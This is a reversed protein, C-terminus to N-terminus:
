KLLLLRRNQTQGSAEVRLVYTGAAVAAGNQSHGNWAWRYEGAQAAELTESLIHQGLVNFVALRVDTAGSLSLEVSVQANFPNPYVGDIRFTPPPTSSPRADGVDNIGLLNEIVSTMLAPDYETARYRIVGEQDVIFDVPFPTFGGSNRGYLNYHSWNGLGVPMTLGYEDVLEAVLNRGEATNMAIMTFDEDQYEEWIATQM